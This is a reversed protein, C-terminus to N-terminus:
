AGSGYIPIVAGTIASAGDGALHVLLSAVQAPPVWQAPNGGPMAARNAPTDMTGPLVVNAGIGREANEAAVTRVLSVLAAKSAAYLGSMPSPEAASRSGIALIRGGGQARMPPLVARFMHLATRLNLNMMRDFTADDSDSVTTGGAFGGILHVLVDIRGWRGMVADVASQAGALSSLDAAVAVFNEAVSQSAARDVAAVRAGSDLFAATVSTGLGGTAGTIIVVKGELSKERGSKEQM